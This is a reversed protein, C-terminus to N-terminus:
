GFTPALAELTAMGSPLEPAPPVLCVEALGASEYESIRSRVTAEDGVLAVHDLLDDPVREFLEKPGPRTRAFEVLEGYGADAFMEAYGPAALYGVFGRALWRREEETPDIATCLWAATNPHCSALRQAAAVTVMNLVMRDATAAIAVAKPGFAAVTITPRPSPPQSLRFGNVRDGALLGRVDGLARELTTSAGSRSRGHWRAVTDSSTGLAVHVAGRTSAVTQLAIAIQVPSRVTVALPGLVLEIQETRCAIMSAMAPSDAKAMEPVWLQQYGLRDAAMALEVDSQLSRDLWQGLVVSVQVAHRYSRLVRQVTVPTSAISAIMVVRAIRLNLWAATDSSSM